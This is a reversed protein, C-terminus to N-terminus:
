DGSLKLDIKGDLMYLGEVSSDELMKLLEEKAAYVVVGYSKVGHEQIYDLAERYEYINLFNKGGPAGGEFIKLFDEREMLYRIMSEVHKEYVAALSLRGKAEDEEYIDAEKDERKTYQALDLCPYEEEDYAMEYDYGRKVPTFGWYRYGEMEVPCYLYHTDYQEMFDVLEEMSKLGDFSVATRIKMLEPAKELTKRAAEKGMCLSKGSNKYTFANIPFDSRNWNLDNRYLHNRVLELMHSTEEGDIQTRVDITYRGYGESWLNLDVFGKDGCFLEMYVSMDLAFPNVVIVSAKEEDVIEVSQDPSYYMWDLLPSLGALLAPVICIAAAVAGILYNRFKRGVAKSIKRSLEDEKGSAERNKEGEKEEKEYIEEDLTQDAYGILVRFKEIDREIEGREESNLEGSLYKEFKDEYRKM